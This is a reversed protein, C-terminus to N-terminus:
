NAMVFGHVSNRLTAPLSPCGELITREDIFKSLYKSFINNYYFIQKVSINCPTYITSHLLLKWLIFQNLRYSSINNDMQYSFYVYM